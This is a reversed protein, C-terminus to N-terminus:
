LDRYGMAVFYLALQTGVLALEVRGTPGVNWDQFQNRLCEERRTKEQQLITEMRERDERKRKVEAKIRALRSQISCM